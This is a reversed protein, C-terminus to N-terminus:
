WVYPILRYPTRKAWAEWETGFEKRLVADERPVRLVIIELIISVIWAEWLGILIAAWRTELLGSEFVYSGPFIQVIFLGARAILFATYSPHRVISYPGSTVLKHEKFIALQFTFYKGLTDYCAQRMAAGVVLMVFGLLFLPSVQLKDVATPDKFLLSLVTDSYRSPWERAVIASLECLHCIYDVAQKCCSVIHSTVYLKSSPM